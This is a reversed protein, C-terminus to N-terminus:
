PMKPWLLVLVSIDTIAWAALGRYMGSEAQQASVKQWHLRWPILIGLWAALSILLYLPNAHAKICAQAFWRSPNRLPLLTVGMRRLAQNSVDSTM